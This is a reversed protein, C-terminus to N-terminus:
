IQIPPEDFPNRGYSRRRHHAVAVLDASNMSSWARRLENDCWKGIARGEDAQAFSSWEARSQQWLILYIFSGYPEYHARTWLRSCGLCELLAFWGQQEVTTLEPANDVPPWVFRAPAGCLECNPM